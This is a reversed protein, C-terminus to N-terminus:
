QGWRGLGDRLEALTIVNARVRLAPARAPYAGDPVPAQALVVMSGVPADLFGAVGRGDTQLSDRSFVNADSLSWACANPPPEPVAEVRVEPARRGILVGPALPTTDRQCDLTRLALTGRMPDVLKGGCDRYAGVRAAEKLLPIGLGYVVTSGEPTGIMPGGLIYHMEAYDPATVKFYGNDFSYPLDFDFLFPVNPNPNSQIFCQQTPTPTVGAACRPLAPVCDANSCIEVVVNPVPTPSVGQSDFDVIVTRYTIRSPMRM